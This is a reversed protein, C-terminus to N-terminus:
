RVNVLRTTRARAFRKGNSAYARRLVCGHQNGLCEPTEACTRRASPVPGYLKAFRAASFVSYDVARKNALRGALRGLAAEIEKRRHKPKKAVTARKGITSALPKRAMKPPDTSFRLLNTSREVRLPQVLRQACAFVRWKWFFANPTLCIPGDCRRSSRQPHGM